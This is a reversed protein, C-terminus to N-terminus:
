VTFVLDSVTEQLTDVINYPSVVKMNDFDLYQGIDEKLMFVLGRLFEPRKFTWKALKDAFHGIDPDLINLIEQLEDTQRETPM